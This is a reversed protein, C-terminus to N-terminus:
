QPEGPPRTRRGIYLAQQYEQEHKLRLAEGEVRGSAYALPDALRATPRVPRGAYADAFGDTWCKPNLLPSMEDDEPFRRTTDTAGPAKVGANSM